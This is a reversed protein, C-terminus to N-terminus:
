PKQGQLVAQSISMWRSLKIWARCWVIVIGSTACSGMSIVYRPEAMQDYIRRIVPAMKRCVTGAVIMLDSQRPSARFVGAGFRDIDYKSSVSAIMEIACCALGFTMPWLASKRCWAICYDLNTTIINPELQREFMSM